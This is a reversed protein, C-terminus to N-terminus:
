ELFSLFLNRSIEQAGLSALHDTYVQCDILRFPKSFGNQVLHIFAVKSANSRLSFMSEGCFVDGLDVGYLGGVLEDGMYVEISKAFGEKNLRIYARKMEDTIWTGSQGPRIVGKCHEIVHEFNRNVEVRFTKRKLVTRMTKSIKLKEPFLVMRPDPSYWVIPDPESYWPFIGCRYALKLRESSLDGGFAVIGEPSANDVSPFSIQETLWPM